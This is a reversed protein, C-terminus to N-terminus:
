QVPMGFSVSGGYLMDPLGDENVDKWFLEFRPASAFKDIGFEEAAGFSGDQEQYVLVAKDHPYYRTFALDIRGDADIDHAKM